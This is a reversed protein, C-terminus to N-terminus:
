VTHLINVYQLISIAIKSINLITRRSRINAFYQLTANAMARLITSYQLIEFTRITGRTGYHVSLHGNSYQITAM